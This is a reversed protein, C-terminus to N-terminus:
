YNNSNFHLSALCGWQALTGGASADINVLLGALSFDGSNEVTGVLVAPGIPVIEVRGEHAAMEEVRLFM